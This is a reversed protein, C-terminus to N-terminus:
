GRQADRVMAVIGARIPGPLSAWAAVVVALDADETSGTDLRTPDAPPTV